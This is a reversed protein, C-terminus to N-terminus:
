SAVSPELRSLLLSSSSSSLLALIITRTFGSTGRSSLSSLAIFVFLKFMEFFRLILPFISLSFISFSCSFCCGTFSSSLLTTSSLSFSFTISSISFITSISLLLVVGIFVPLCSLSSSSTSVLISCSFSSSLNDCVSDSSSIRDSVVILLVFLLISNVTEMGICTFSSFFISSSLSNLSIFAHLSFSSITAKSM